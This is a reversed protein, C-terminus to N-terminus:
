GRDIGKGEAGQPCELQGDGGGPGAKAHAVSCGGSLDPFSDWQLDEVLERVFSLDLKQQLRRYFNDEPVLDELSIDNPLPQFNREKTGMM